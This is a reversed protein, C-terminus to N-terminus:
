GKFINDNWNDNVRCAYSCWRHGYYSGIYGGCYVCNCNIVRWLRLLGRYLYDLM